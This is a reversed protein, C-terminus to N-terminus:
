GVFILTVWVFGDHTYIGIGVRRFRRELINDRHPASRMFADFLARMSGGAGVNEGAVHWSVSSLRSGLSVTHFIRGAEAMRRSHEDAIARLRWGRYLAVAGRDSRADNMWGLMDRRPTWAARAGPVVGGLVASLSLTFIMVKVTKALGRRM